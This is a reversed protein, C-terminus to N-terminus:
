RVCPDAQQQQQQAAGQEEPLEEWWAALGIQAHKQPAGDGVRPTLALPALAVGLALM